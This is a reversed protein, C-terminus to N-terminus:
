VGEKGQWAKKVFDACREAVMYTPAMTHTVPIVPFVSADAIRLNSFGHVRLQEDVVGGDEERAMRCSSSHHLIARINAKTFEALEEDDYEPGEAGQSSPRPSVLMKASHSFGSKNIFDHALRLSFRLARKAVQIDAPESLVNLSITPDVEPDTSAIEVCGESKPRLLCTFLTAMSKGKHSGPVVNAPIIMVEADPLNEPKSADLQSRQLPMTSSTTDFTSTKFFVASQTSPSRMWGQRFALFRALQWLAQLPSKEMFHFTQDFPVEMSIPIGYHDNLHKGVPLDRKLAINHKQLLPAPGIGSLQLLQPSRIAGSTIIVERRARILATGDRNTARVHVGLVRSGATDLELRAAMVSTCIVLHNQREIALQRPLYSRFASHREGGSDITCDLYFYGAAPADERNLEHEVPLGLASASKQLYRNMEFLPPHQTIQVQGRTSAAGMHPRRMDEVKEFYPKVNDWTWDQYGTVSLWEDYMAPLGRTYLMGNIRSSGGLSESHVLDIRRGHCNENPESKRLVNGPVADFTCSTLPVRSLFTDHVSGREIVLVTVKPDESLRSAVACGATGGGVIIYDYEQGAVGELAKEPYSNSLPWM